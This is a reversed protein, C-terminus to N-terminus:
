LRRRSFLGWAASIQPQCVFEYEATRYGGIHTLTDASETVKGSRYCRIQTLDCHRSGGAAKNEM